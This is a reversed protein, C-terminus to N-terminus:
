EPRPKAYVFGAIIKATEGRTLRGDAYFDEGEANDMIGLGCVVAVAKDTMEENEASVAGCPLIGLIVAICLIKSIINNM